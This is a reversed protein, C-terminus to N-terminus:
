NNTLNVWQKTIAELTISKNIKRANSSIIKALKKNEILYIMAEALEHTNGIHTLLGNVKNEIFMSAGGVPCDTCICPLGIGLAELMSNSIGEYDSSSVYMYANQMIQHINKAFGPFLVSNQLNMQSVKSELAQLLEGEGYIFLKYEPYKKNVLSFADILMPLNKQETLRAATIIEKSSEGNWIPLNPTIPNPIIVIKTKIGYLNQLLEVAMPTQCVLIDAHNYCFNRVIKKWKEIPEKRPDNRESDILKINKVRSLLKALYAYSAMIPGFSYIIDIKEKKIINALNKIKLWANFLHSKNKDTLLHFCIHENEIKYNNIDEFICVHVENEKISSLGDVILSAVREAGGHGFHDTLIIIKM